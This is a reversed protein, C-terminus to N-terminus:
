NDQEAAQSTYVTYDPCVPLESIFQCAAGRAVMVQTILWTQFDRLCPRSSTAGDSPTILIGSTSSIVNSYFTVICNQTYDSTALQYIYHTALSFHIIEDAYLHTAKSCSQILIFYHIDGTSFCLEVTHNCIPFWEFNIQICNNFQTM